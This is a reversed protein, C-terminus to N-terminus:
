KSGHDSPKYTVGNMMPTANPLLTDGTDAVTFTIPPLADTVSGGVDSMFVFKQGGPGVFLM